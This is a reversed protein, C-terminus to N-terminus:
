RVALWLLAVGMLTLWFIGATITIVAMRYTRWLTILKYRM